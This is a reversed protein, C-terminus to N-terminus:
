GAPQHPTIPELQPMDREKEALGHLHVYCTIPQLAATYWAIRWGPKVSAHSVNLIAKVSAMLVSNLAGVKMSAVFSSCLINM